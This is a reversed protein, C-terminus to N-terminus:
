REGRALALLADAAAVVEDPRKYHRVSKAYLEAHEVVEAPMPVRAEPNTEEDPFTM